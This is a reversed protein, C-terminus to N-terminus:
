DYGVALVFTGFDFELKQFSSLVQFIIMVSSSTFTIVHLVTYVFLSILYRVVAPHLEQRHLLVSPNFDLIKRYQTHSSPCLLVTDIVRCVHVCSKM